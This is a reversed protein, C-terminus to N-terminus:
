PVFPFRQESSTSFSQFEPGRTNKKNDIRRQRFGKWAEYKIYINSGNAPLNLLSIVSTRFIKKGKRTAISEDILTTTTYHLLDQKLNYNYNYFDQLHKIEKVHYYYCIRFQFLIKSRRKKRPFIMADFNRWM